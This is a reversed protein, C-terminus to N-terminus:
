AKIQFTESIFKERCQKLTKETLQRKWEHYAKFSLRILLKCDVSLFLFRKEDVKRNLVNTRLRPDAFVMLTFNLALKFRKQLSIPTCRCHELFELPGHFHNRGKPTWPAFFTLFWQNLLNPLTRTLYM